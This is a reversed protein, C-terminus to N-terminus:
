RARGRLIAKLAQVVVFVVAGSTFLSFRYLQRTLNSAGGRANLVFGACIAMVAVREFWVLPAPTPRVKSAAAATPDREINKGVRLTALYAKLAGKLTSRIAAQDPGTFLADGQGVLFRARRELIANYDTLADGSRFPLAGRGCDRLREEHRGALRGFDAGLVVRNEYLGPTDAGTPKASTVLFKGDDLASYLVVKEANISAVTGWTVVALTQRGPPVLLVAHTRYTGGKAHRLLGQSVFGLGEAASLTAEDFGVAGPAEYPNFPGEATARRRANEPLRSWEPDDAPAPDLYRLPRKEVLHTVIIALGLLLYLGVGAVVLSTVFLAVLNM